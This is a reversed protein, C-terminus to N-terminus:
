VRLITTQQTITYYQMHQVFNGDTKIAYGNTKIRKWKITYGCGNRNGAIGSGGENKLLFFITISTPSLKELQKRDNEDRDIFMWMLLPPPTALPRCQLWGLSWLKLRLWQVM